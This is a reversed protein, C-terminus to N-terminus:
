TSIVTQNKHSLLVVTEVHTTWPFMDVPQVKGVEYGELLRIDRALTMPNCSVYVIKGVGQLAALLKKDCGKRPPDVVAVDAEWKMSPLVKEAEGLIFAAHSIGNNRANERADDVAEKVVEIGLVEKAKGAMYLGITGTGCYLDLVTEKGTLGAFEVVKDYLVKTQAPNVQFFSVPSINFVLDGIKDQIVDKGFIKRSKKGLIVNGKQANENIYISSVQPIRTIIRHILDKTHPLEKGNVVLIVMVEGTSLAVRSVVHRIAGKRTNEDYAKIHYENCFDIVVNKISESHRDQIMCDDHQIIHHSRKAYFGIVFDDEDTRGCPYNAKNRYCYPQDMGIIPQVVAATTKDDLGATRILADKVLQEKYRLQEEYKFHQLTCGGCRKNAACFPEQRFISQQLVALLKGVAHSKTVKIIMIEVKEEPLAGEVFVVFGDVRGVGQGESNLGEVQVICTDNKNIM